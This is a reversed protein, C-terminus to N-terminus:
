RRHIEEPDGLRDPARASSYPRKGWVSEFAKALAQVLTPSEMLAAGAHAPQDSLSGDPREEQSLQDIAEPLDRLDSRAGSSSIKAMAYCPHHDELRATFGSFLGNVGTDAAGLTGCPHHKEGWSCTGMIKKL